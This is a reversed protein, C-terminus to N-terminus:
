EAEKIFLGLVEFDTNPISQLRVDAGNLRGAFKADSVKFKALKVKGSDEIKLAGLKKWAGANAQGKRVNSDNSDYVLEITDPGSDIYVISIEIERKGSMNKFGQPAKFYAYRGSFNPSKIAKLFKVGGHDVDKFESEATKLVPEFKVGLDSVKKADFESGITRGLFDPAAFNDTRFPLSPFGMDNYLNGLAFSKWMYRAAIPTKVKDSKLAIHKSDIIKAKAPFFVRDEGCLEFGSLEGEPLVFAEPDKGFEMNRRKNLAVRKALLKNGSNTFKVLVTGDKLVKCSEYMPSETKPAQPKDMAKVISNVREAVLEKNQPHIDEYEGIDVASVAYTNKLKLAKLQAERLWAWAENTVDGDVARHAALVVFVFPMDPKKFEKRWDEIMRPFLVAYREPYLSSSEGQWWLVGKFTMDKLPNVMTNYLLHSPHGGSTKDDFSTMVERSIEPMWPQIRTGGVAAEVLGVPVGEDASFKNAFYYALPSFSQLNKGSVSSWNIQLDAIQRPTNEAKSDTRRVLCIRVNENSEDKLKERLLPHGGVPMDINSQGSCLWVDGVLINKLEAIEKGSTLRLDEAKLSAKMPSLFLSWKGNENARATKRQGSFEVCVNANPNASGSIHVKAGRQLVMNDSYINDFSLVAFAQSAAFSLFSTKLAIKFFSKM